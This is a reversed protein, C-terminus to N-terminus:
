GAAMAVIPKALKISGTSGHYQADFAFVGGDSAVLWYGRKDPDPAMGVIPKNLKLSGTSGSFQADFAFVGGDSAVLWYGSKDPDAAMGVIPKNLRMGGTSGSFAADFSFIGGDAAVLWYGRGDPDAAIGVIPSNLHKGGMSGLFPVGFAFVGGDAAALYYGKGNPDAAIGVIPSNLKTGGLSGLFPADFSLVGGDAAAMLYGKGDADAAIGVVPAGLRLVASGSFPADFAFAGGDSAALVYGRTGAVVSVHSPSPPSTFRVVAFDGASNFGTPAVAGVAVIKGDAQVAVGLASADRDNFTVSQVGGPGFAADPDGDVTLRLVQLAPHACDGGATGIVVAGDAQTVIGMVFLCDAATADLDAIGESGFTADPLGEPTFRTVVLTATADDAISLAGALIRGSSDVTGDVVFDLVGVDITAAGNTGFTGDLVGSNTYRWAIVDFGPSATSGGDGIVVLKNTGPQVQVAVGRAGGTRDVSVKGATGFTADLAGSSTLRALLLSSTSTVAGNQSTTGTWGTVVVKDGQLAIGSLTSGAAIDTSRVLGGSGFTSDLSGSSTFRALFTGGTALGLAVITGDGAVVVKTIIEDDSSALDVVVRGAGGTGFTPDLSGDANYRALEIVTGREGIGGGAVVIKGNSALAVAAAADDNGTFDTAIAGSGAFTRDLLPSDGAPCVPQSGADLGPTAIITGGLGVAWAKSPAAVLAVGQLGHCTSSRQSTWTAGGDSTFLAVGTDGVAVGTTTSTSFSVAHLDRTIGSAQATWTAGDTTSKVVVGSAGVAYIGEASATGSATISYLNSSTSSPASAFSGGSTQRLVTGGFGVVLTSGAPTATVAFLDVASPSAVTSYLAVGSCQRANSGAAGSRLITGHQGVAVVEDPSRAAVGYLDTTVGTSQECWTLGADNSWLVTGSAGAAWFCALNGSAGCGTSTSTVARLDTQSTTTVKSWSTGGNTTRLITGGAGVAVGTNADIFSVAGLTASTGSPEASWDTAAAAPSANVLVPLVLTVMALAVM